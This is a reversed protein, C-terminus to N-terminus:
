LTRIECQSTLKNIPQLYLIARGTSHKVLDAIANSYPEYVKLIELLFDTLKSVSVRVTFM